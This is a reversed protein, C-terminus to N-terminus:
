ASERAKQLDEIHQAAYAGYNISNPTYQGEAKDLRKQDYDKQKAKLEWGFALGATGAVVFYGPHREAVWCDGDGYKQLFVQYQSTTITDAFVPDLWIYCRGDDSIVGEGVDGFLPSPTEYCYLLRDSYQDTEVRRSKTGSASFNGSVSLPLGSFVENYKVILSGSPSTGGQLALGDNLSLIRGDQVFNSGTKDYFYLGEGSLITKVTMQLGSDYGEYQLGTTGFSCAYNTGSANLTGSGLTFDGILGNKAVLQGTGSIDWSNNNTGTISGKTITIGDKTWTGIVNGSADLINLVGNANDLGGLTLTGGQIFDAILKGYRAYDMNLYLKKDGAAGLSQVNADLSLGQELGGDTLRDFIEQQTLSNDLNQIAQNTQTSVAQINTNATNLAAAAAKDAYQEQLQAQRTKPSIYPYEDSIEGPEPASVDGRCAIGLRVTEECIVSHVNGTLNIYDGIEVAPDYIAGSLSYAQYTKGILASSLYSTSYGIGAVASIDVVLGTDTGLLTEVRETDTIRVGTITNTTGVSIGGLVATVAVVNSAASSANAASNLPVLRLKNEPTIIWNGGHAAAIAGLVDRMTAGNSDITIKFDNGTQISTRSDITVGILAAINNVADIMRVTTPAFYISTGNHDTILNNNHDTWPLGYEYEANAKMLADYCELSIVETVPDVERHAVFFTGAPYWASTSTGDTYQMEIVVQASRPIYDDISATVTRTGATFMGAVSADSPVPRLSFECSAAVANGVSLGGQMVGRKIVPTSIQEYVTGDITARTKLVASGTAALAKWTASTSQM